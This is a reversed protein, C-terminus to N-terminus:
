KVATVVARAYQWPVLSSPRVLKATSFGQNLIRQTIDKGYDRFVLVPQHDRIPDGHYQAPLLHEIQQKHDLRTREVTDPSPFLPVTFLFLGGPRLVRKIESFGALDNPVHEFVETSTCLDFSNDAFTLQQVDQCLIGNHSDGPPIGDLYESCTMKRCTKKLFSVLPGRSSLEYIEKSSLDPVLQRLVAVLSMTVATARCTLCRVAIQNRHLRVIIRKADCVPCYYYTMAAERWKISSLARTLTGSRM